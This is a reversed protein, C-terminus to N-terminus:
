VPNTLGRRTNTGGERMDKLLTEGSDHTSSVGLRMVDGRQSVLVLERQSM